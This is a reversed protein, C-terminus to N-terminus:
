LRTENNPQNTNQITHAYRYFNFVDVLYIALLGAITALPFIILNFGLNQYLLICALFWIGIGSLFSWLRDMNKEIIMYINSFVTLSGLWGAILQWQAAATGDIYNPLLLQVFYPILLWGAVAAVGNILLSAAVPKLPIRLLEIFPRGQGWAFAMKPFSVNSIANSLTKIGTDVIIALSFLGLAKAGGWYVIASRQFVPWLGYINAVWFIPMGVQLLEKFTISDWQPKAKIPRWYHTLAWDVGFLFLARLCLGYFKYEYVFYLSALTALSLVIDITSLKNFDNNSRYLVKLYKTIYLGQFSSIGIVFVGAAYQPENLWLFVLAIISAIIISGVGTLIAWYHSVAATKLAKAQEQKGMYFPLQRSLGSPVGIQVLILYSTIIGFGNFLGLQEPLLWRAVFLGAVLSIANSLLSAVSMFAMMKGSSSLNNKPLRFM